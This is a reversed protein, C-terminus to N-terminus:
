ILIKLYDILVKKWTIREKKKKKKENKRSSQLLLTHTEEISFYQVFFTKNCEQVNFPPLLSKIIFCFAVPHHFPSCRISQHIVHCKKKKKKEGDNLESSGEKFCARM